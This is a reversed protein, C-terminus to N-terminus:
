RLPVLHRIKEGTGSKEEAVATGTLVYFPNQYVLITVRAGAVCGTNGSFLM